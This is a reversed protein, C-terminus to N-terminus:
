RCHEESLGSQVKGYGGEDEYRDERGERANESSEEEGVELV